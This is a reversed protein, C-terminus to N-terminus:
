VVKGGVVILMAFQKRKPLNLILLVRLIFLVGSTRKQDEGVNLHCGSNSCIRQQVGSIHSSFM